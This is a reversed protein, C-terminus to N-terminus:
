AHIARPSVEDSISITQVSELASDEPIPDNNQICSIVYGEIAASLNKQTEEISSGFTHCGPLAPVSGHFQAGDKQIFTRFSYTRM